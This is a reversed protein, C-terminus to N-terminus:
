TGASRKLHTRVQFMLMLTKICKEVWGNDGGKCAESFDRYVHGAVVLLAANQWVVDCMGGSLEKLIRSGEKKRDFSPLPAANRGTSQREAVRAAKLAARNDVVQKMHEQMQTEVSDIIASHRTQVIYPDGYERLIKAIANLWNNQRLWQHLDALTKAKIAKMLCAVIQGDLVHNFFENSGHFDKVDKGVTKPRLLAAFRRLSGPYRGASDFAHMIIKLANMQLHFLSAIPETFSFNHIREGHEQRRYIARAINRVMLYEGSRWLVSHLVDRSNLGFM